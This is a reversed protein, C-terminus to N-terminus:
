FISDVRCSGILLCQAAGEEQHETAVDDTSVVLAHKWTCVLLLLIKYTKVLRDLEGTLDYYIM